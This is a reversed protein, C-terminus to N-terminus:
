LANLYGVAKGAPIHGFVRLGHETNEGPVRISALAKLVAKAQKPSTIKMEVWEISDYGRSQFHYFWEADWDSVHGTEVDRTRWTPGLPGLGHMALRLEEWKTNNM